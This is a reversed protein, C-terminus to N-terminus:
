VIYGIIIQTLSEFGKALDFGGINYLVPIATLGSTKSEHFHGGIIFTLGRNSFHVAFLQLPSDDINVLGAGSGAAAPRATTTTTASSAAEAAAAAATAAAAASTAVLLL